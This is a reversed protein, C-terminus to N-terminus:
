SSRDELLNRVARHLNGEGLQPTARRSAHEDGFRTVVAPHEVQWQRFDKALKMGVGEGTPGVLHADLDGVLHRIQKAGFALPEGVNAHELLLAAAVGRM